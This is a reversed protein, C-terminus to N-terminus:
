KRNRYFAHMSKIATIFFSYFFLVKEIVPSECNNKKKKEERNEAVSLLPFNKCVNHEGVFILTSM